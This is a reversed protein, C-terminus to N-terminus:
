TKKWKAREQERFTRAAPRGGLQYAEREKKNCAECYSRNDRNGYSFSDLSKALGCISCTKEPITTSSPSDRTSAAQERYEPSLWIPPPRSVDRGSAESTATPTLQPIAGNSKEPPVFIAGCRLCMWESAYNANSASAARILLFSIGGAILALMYSRMLLSAVAVILLLGGAGTSVPAARKALLSQSTTTSTYRGSSYALKGRSFYSRYRGRRNSQRTGSEYAVSRAKTNSSGCEPCNCRM